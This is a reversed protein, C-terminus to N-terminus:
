PKEAYVAIEVLGTNGGSSRVVDLRLKRATVQVPFRYAKAADPLKFPGLKEGTGTTLTFEFIQATGDAMTRTWVEVMRVPRAGDLEVEIFAGDGDGYSSWATAENGDIASSGGWAGNIPGGGWNSSVATVTLPAKVLGTLADDSPKPRTRFTRAQGAYLTGDAAVGQVRYHYVTDPQLGALVPSHEIATVGGMSPDNTIAGFAPSTGYVVTCAIPMKTTFTLRASTPTVSVVRPEDGGLSAETIPKVPVAPEQALAPPMATVALVALVALTLLPKPPM